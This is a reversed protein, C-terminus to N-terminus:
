TWPHSLGRCQAFIPVLPTRSTKETRTHARPTNAAAQRNAQQEERNSSTNTSQKNNNITQQQQNNTTTTTTTPPPPPTTPVVSVTADLGWAAARRRLGDRPLAWLFFAGAVPVARRPQKHIRGPGVVGHLPLQTVAPEDAGHRQHRRSRVQQRIDKDLRLLRLPAHSNTRPRSQHSWRATCMWWMGVVSVSLPSAEITGRNAGGKKDPTTQVNQTEEFAGAPEVDDHIVFKRHVLRRPPGHKRLATVRELQPHGEDLFGIGLQVVVVQRNHSPSYRARCVPSHCV